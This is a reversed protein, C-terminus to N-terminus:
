RVCRTVMGGGPEGRSLTGGPVGARGRCSVHEALLVQDGVEGTDQVGEGHEKDPIDQCPM